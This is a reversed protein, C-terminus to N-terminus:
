RHRHDLYVLYLTYDDLSLISSLSSSANELILSKPSPATEESYCIECNIKKKFDDENHLVLSSSVFWSILLGHLMQFKNLKGAMSDRLLLGSFYYKSVDWLEIRYEENEKQGSSLLYKCLIPRSIIRM